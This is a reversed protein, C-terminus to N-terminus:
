SFVRALVEQKHLPFWGEGSVIDSWLIHSPCILLYINWGTWDRILISHIIIIKCPPFRENYHMQVCQLTYQESATLLLRKRERTEREKERTTHKRSSRDMLTDPHPPTFSRQVACLLRKACCSARIIFSAECFLHSLHLVFWSFATNLTLPHGM